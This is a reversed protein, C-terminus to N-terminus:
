CLAFLHVIMNKRLHHFNLQDFTKVQDIVKVVHEYQTKEGPIVVATSTENKALFNEIRAPLREIDVMKGNFNILGQDTLKVVITPSPNDPPTNNKEPKSIM